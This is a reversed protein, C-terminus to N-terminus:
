SMLRAQPSWSAQPLLPSPVARLGTTPWTGGHLMIRAGGCSISLAAPQPERGRGWLAKRGVGMARLAPALRCEGLLVSYRAPGWSGRSSDRSKLPTHFHCLSPLSPVESKSRSRKRAPSM